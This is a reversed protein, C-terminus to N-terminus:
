RHGGETVHALVKAARAVDERTTTPTHPSGCGRSATPPPRRGSAGSGSATRPAPRSRRSRRARDPCRCRSCRAPPRSSAAPGRSPRRTRGCRPPWRRARAGSCRLAALAAGAAAPALGTDYIFSRATNVLHERVAPRGLVAGGQAGLSKSLTVTSSSTTWGALAPRAALGAGTPRRRRGARAGRRRAARRRPPRCVEALEALPAADGLVPLDVRGAVVARAESRAALLARRGRRTTTPSWPWTPAAVAPLRRDDLRARPRRLRGPHRRRGARDVAGSTPTTAPPSRGARRRGAFRRAGARAGDHLALTGTVLRSAGAGAGYAQAAARGGRRRAPARRPRPLRQRGPRHLPATAPPAPRRGPARTLAPRRASPPM